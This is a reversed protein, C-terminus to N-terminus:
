TRAVDVRHHAPLLELGRVGFGHDKRWCRAAPPGHQRRAQDGAVTGPRREASPVETVQHVLQVLDQRWAALRPGALWGSVLAADIADRLHTTPTRPTPSPGPGPVCWPGNPSIIKIKQPDVGFETGVASM